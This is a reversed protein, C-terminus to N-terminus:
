RQKALHRAEVRALSLELRDDALDGRGESRGRAAVEMRAARMGHRAATLLRRRQLFDACAVERGAMQVLASTISLASCRILLIRALNIPPTISQIPTAAM